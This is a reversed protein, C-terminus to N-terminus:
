PSPIRIGSGPLPLWARPPASRLCIGPDRVTHGRRGSRKETRSPNQLHGAFPLRWPPSSRPYRQSRLLRPPPRKRSAPPISLFRCATGAPHGERQLPYRQLASPTEGCSSLSLDPLWFVTPSHKSGPKQVADQQRVPFHPAPLHSRASAPFSPDATAEEPGQFAEGAYAAFPCLGPVAGQLGAPLPLPFHRSPIQLFYLLFSLLFNQLFYQHFHFSPLLVAAPFLFHLLRDVASVASSPRFVRAARRYLGHVAPSLCLKGSFCPLFVPCHWPGTRTSRLETSIM